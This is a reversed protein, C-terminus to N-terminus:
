PNSAAAPHTETERAVAWPQVCATYRHKLSCEDALSLGYRRPRQSVSAFRSSLCMMHGAICMDVELMCLMVEGGLGGRCVTSGRLGVGECM